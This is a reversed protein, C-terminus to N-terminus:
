RDLAFKVEGWDAEKPAARGSGPISALGRPAKPSSPKQQPPTEGPQSVIWGQAAAYDKAAEEFSRGALTQLTKSQKYEQVIQEVPSASQLIRAELTPDTLKHQQGWEIAAEVEEKGYKTEAKFGSIEAKVAWDRQAQQQQIYAEFGNPDEYADPIRPTAPVPQHSSLEQLKREAEQRKRREEKMERYLTPNFKEEPEKEPEKQDDAPKEAEQETQEEAKEPESATVEEPKETEVTEPEAGVEELWDDGLRDIADAM